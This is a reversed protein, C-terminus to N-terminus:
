REVSLDVPVVVTLGIEAISESVWEGIEIEHGEFISLEVEPYLQRFRRSWAPLLRQTVSPVSAVRPSRRGAADHARDIIRGVAQSAIEADEQIALAFATPAVRDRGRTLLPV